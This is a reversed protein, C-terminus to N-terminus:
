EPSSFTCIGWRASGAQEKEWRNRGRAEQGALEIMISIEKEEYLVNWEMWASPGLGSAGGGKMPEGGGRRDPEKLQRVIDVGTTDTELLLSRTSGDQRKVGVEIPLRSFCSWGKLANSNYVDVANCVLSSSSSGKKEEFQLSLGHEKSSRYSVSQFDKRILQIGEESVFDLLSKIHPSSDHEGLVSLLISGSSMM